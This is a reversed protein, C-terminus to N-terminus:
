SASQVVHEVGIADLAVDLAPRDLDRRDGEHAAPREVVREDDEVFRLVRRGLLHLHEERADAEARLRDDRAVHRLDVQRMAARRAQDFGDLDNAVDFAYGKDMEIIAVDHPWM